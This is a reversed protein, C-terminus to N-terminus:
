LFLPKLINYFKYYDSGNNNKIKELNLVYVKYLDDEFFNNNDKFSWNRIEFNMNNKYTIINYQIVKAINEDNVFFDHAKELVDFNFEPDMEKKMFLLQVLKNDVDNIIYTISSMKRDLFFECDGTEFGLSNLIKNHLSKDNLLNNGLSIKM